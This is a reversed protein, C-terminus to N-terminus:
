AAHGGDLEAASLNLHRYLTAHSVGVTKAIVHIPRKDTRTLRQRPSSTRPCRPRGTATGAAHVLLRWAPALLPELPDLELPAATRVRLGLKIPQLNSPRPAARDRPRYLDSAFSSKWSM